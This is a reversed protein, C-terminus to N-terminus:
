IMIRLTDCLYASEGQFERGSDVCLWHPKGFRPFLEQWLWNTAMIVTKNTILYIEVLKSFCYIVVICYKYGKISHPTLKAILDISCGEFPSQPKDTLSTCSVVLLQVKKNLGCSRSCVSM